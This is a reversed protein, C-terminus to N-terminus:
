FCGLERLGRVREPPVAIEEGTITRLQWRRDSRRAEVLADAALWCGRRVIAGDLRALERELDTFRAYVLRDRGDRDFLRVYHDEARAMVLSRPGGFGERFLIGKRLVPLPDVKVLPWLILLLLVCIAAGSLWIGTWHVALPYGVLRGVLLIEAPLPLTFLLAGTIAIRQWGRGPRMHWRFWVAWLLGNFGILLTWFILRTPLPMRFTGFPGSLGCFLIAALSAGLLIRESRRPLLRNAFRRVRNAFHHKDTDRLDARHPDTVM